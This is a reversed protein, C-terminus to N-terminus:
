PTVIPFPPAPAAEDFSATLAQLAKSDGDIKMAGTLIFRAAPAGAFLMALFAQRPM